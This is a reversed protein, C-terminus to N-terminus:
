REAASRGRADNIMAMITTTRESVWKVGSLLQGWKLYVCFFYIGVLIDDNGGSSGGVVFVDMRCGCCHFLVGSIFRVIMRVISMGFFLGCGCNLCISDSNPEGAAVGVASGVDAVMVLVVLVVAVVLDGDGGGGGPVKVRERRLVSDGSTVVVVVVM